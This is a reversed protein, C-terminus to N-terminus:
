ATGKTMLYCYPFGVPRVNSMLPRGFALASLPLPLSLPDSGKTISPRGADEPRPSAPHEQAFAGPTGCFGAVVSFGIAMFYRRVIMM